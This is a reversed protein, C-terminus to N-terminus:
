PSFRFGRTSARVRAGYWVNDGAGGDILGSEISSRTNAVRDNGAGMNVKASGISSDNIVCQDNGGGTLVELSGISCFHTSFNDAGNDSGFDAFLRGSITSNVVKLTSSVSDRADASVSNARINTLEVIENSGRGFLVDVAALNSNPLYARFVDNGDLLAVRVSRVADRAFPGAVPTYNNGNKSVMIGRPTDEVRISDAGNTGEVYLTGANLSAIVDAAMFQRGELSEIKLTRQERNKKIM